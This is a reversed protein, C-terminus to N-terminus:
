VEARSVEAIRKAQEIQDVTGDPIDSSVDVRAIFLRVVPASKLLVSATYTGHGALDQFRRLTRRSLTDRGSRTWEYEDDVWSKYGDIRDSYDFIEEHTGDVGTDIIAVKVPRDMSHAEAQTESILLPHFLDELEKLWADATTLVRQHQDPSRDRTESTTETTGQQQTGSERARSSSVQSARPQSPATTRSADRASTSAISQPKKAVPRTHPVSNLRSSNTPPSAASTHDIESTTTPTISRLRSALKLVETLCIQLEPRDKCLAENKNCLEQAKSLSGYSYLFESLFHRAMVNSTDNKNLREQRALCNRLLKYAEEHSGPLGREHLLAALVYTNNVGELSDEEHTQRLYHLIQERNLIQENLKVPQQLAMQDAWGTRVNIMRDHLRGLMDTDDSRTARHEKLAEELCDVAAAYQGDDEKVLALKYWDRVSQPEPM